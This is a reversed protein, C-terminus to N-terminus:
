QQILLKEITLPKEIFRVNREEALQKDFPNLSASLLCIQGHFKNLGLENFKDIFQFGNIVPLKIDVLIYQYYLTTGALFPLAAVANKLVTINTVGRSVLIKHNIFNDIDNNDILLVSKIETM